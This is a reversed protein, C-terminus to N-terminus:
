QFRSQQEHLSWNMMDFFFTIDLKTLSPPIMKQKNKIKDM